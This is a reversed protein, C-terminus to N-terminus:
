SEGLCNARTHTPDFVKPGVGRKSLEYEVEGLLEAFAQGRPADDWHNLLWRCAAPEGLLQDAKFCAANFFEGVTGVSDLGDGQWGCFAIPCTAGVPEADNCMLPPPNTTCGQTLRQDDTRLAEALATLGADSLIPAFRTRWTLRWSEM